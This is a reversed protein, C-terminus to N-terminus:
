AVRKRDCQRLQILPTTSALYLPHRPFGRSTLGLCFASDIRSLMLQHRNCFDGHVGWAAVICQVRIRWHDIWRDNDPGIPDSAERLNSPQTSRFGFLNTLVLGGYGWSKAFGICRRVTPDDRFEDATSPNLGIFMVLPLKANWTRRLVYRYKRCESFEATSKMQIEGVDTNFRACKSVRDSMICSDSRLDM